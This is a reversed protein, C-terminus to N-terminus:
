RPAGNVWVEAIIGVGALEVVRARAAKLSREQATWCGRGGEYSVVRIGNGVRMGGAVAAARMEEITQM